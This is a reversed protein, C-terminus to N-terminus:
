FLTRELGQFHCIQGRLREMEGSAVTSVAGMGGPDDESGSNPVQSLVLPQPLQNGWRGVGLGKGAAGLTEPSYGNVALPALVRPSRKRM